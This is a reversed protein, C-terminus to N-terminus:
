SESVKFSNGSADASVSCSIPGAGDGNIQHYVMKLVGSSASIQPISSAGHGGLDGTASVILGYASVLPAGLLTLPVIQSYMMASQYFLVQGAPYFSHLFFYLVFFRLHTFTSPIFSIIQVPWTSVTMYPFSKIGM